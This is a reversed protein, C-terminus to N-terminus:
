ATRRPQPEERPELQLEKEAGPAGAELERNREREANLEMGLLLSLNTIWMWVLLSVAGGLTGYTKDYSGFNSVYFAFLVSAVIWLGLALLAGRRGTRDDEPCCRM